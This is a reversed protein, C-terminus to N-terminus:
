TFKVPTYQHVLVYVTIIRATFEEKKDRMWGGSLRGNAARDVKKFNLFVALIKFKGDPCASMNM